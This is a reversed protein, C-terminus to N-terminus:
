CGTGYFSSVTPFTLKRLIIIVLNTLYSQDTTQLRLASYRQFSRLTLAFYPLDILLDTNEVTQIFVIAGM